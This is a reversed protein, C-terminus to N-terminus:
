FAFDVEGRILGRKELLLFKVVGNLAHTEVLLLLGEHGDNSSIAEELEQVEFLLGFQHVYFHVFGDDIGKGGIELKGKEVQGRPVVSDQVQDVDFILLDVFDVDVLLVFLDVTELPMGLFLAYEGSSIRTSLKSNEIQTGRLSLRNQVDLLIANEGEVEVFVVLFYDSAGRVVCNLDKVQPVRLDRDVYQCSMTISDVPDHTRGEIFIVQNRTGEVHTDLRPGQLIHLSWQQPRVVFMPLEYVINIVAHKDFVQDHSTGQVLSKADEVRFLFLGIIEM